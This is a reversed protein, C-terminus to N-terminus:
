GRDHRVFLQCSQDASVRLGSKLDVKPEDTGVSVLRPQQEFPFMAQGGRQPSVDSAAFEYDAIANVCRELTNRLVGIPVVPEISDPNPTFVATSDVFSVIADDLLAFGDGNVPDDGIEAQCKPHVQRASGVVAAKPAASKILRKLKLSALGDMIRHGSHFVKAVGDRVM